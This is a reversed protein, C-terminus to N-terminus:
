ASNIGRIDTTTRGHGIQIGAYINAFRGSGSTASSANVTTGAADGDGIRWATVTGVTTISGPTGPAPTQCAALALGAIFIASLLPKLLYTRSKRRNFPILLFVTWTAFTTRIKM